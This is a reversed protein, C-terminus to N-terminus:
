PGDISGIKLDIRFIAGSYILHFFYDHDPATQSEGALIQAVRRCIRRHETVDSSGNERVFCIRWYFPPHNRV